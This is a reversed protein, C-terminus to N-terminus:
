AGRWVWLPLRNNNLMSAFGMQCLNNSLLDREATAKGPRSFVLYRQTAGGLTPCCLADKGKRAVVRGLSVCTLGFKVSKRFIKMERYFPFGRRQPAFNLCVMRNDATETKMLDWRGMGHLVM